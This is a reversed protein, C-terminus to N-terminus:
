TKHKLHTSQIPQTGILRVLVVMITSQKVRYTNHIKRIEMTIVPAAAIPPLSNDEEVWGYFYSQDLCPIEHPLPRTWMHVTVDTKNLEVMVSANGLMAGQGGPWEVEYHNVRFGVFDGPEAIIREDESVYLTVTGLATSDTDTEPVLAPHFNEGIKTFSCSESTEIRRWISFYMQYRDNFERRSEVYARWQTVYGACSITYSPVLAAIRNVLGERRLHETDRFEPLNNVNCTDCTISTSLVILVATTRFIARASM